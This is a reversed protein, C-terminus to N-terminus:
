DCIELVKYILIGGSTAVNLSKKIGLMPLEVVHDSCEIISKSVGGIENGLVICVDRSGDLALKRYDVSRDDQELTVIAVGESKLRAILEDAESYYEWAVSKEAWLATKAIEKRPPTPTIGILYIGDFWAGDATRFLAGVNLLSRINDLLLYKKM